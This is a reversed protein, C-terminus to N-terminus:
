CTRHTFLSSPNLVRAPRFVQRRDAMRKVLELILMHLAYVPQQLQLLSSTRCLADKVHAFGAVYRPTEYLVVAIIFKSTVQFSWM